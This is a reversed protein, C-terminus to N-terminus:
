ESFLTSLHRVKIPTLDKLVIPSAAAEGHNTLVNLPKPPLGNRPHARGVPVAVYDSFVKDLYPPSDDIRVILQRKGQKPVMLAERTLGKMLESPPPQRQSM